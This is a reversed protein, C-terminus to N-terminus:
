SWRDWKKLHRTVAGMFNGGEYWGPASWEEFHLHCGSANGTEGVAGIKEGTKVKEGKHFPSPKKLHMYVYDHGTKKGDIVVYNGASSHYARYQVRGGRVAVLKTGCAAFVDQGQHTHGARPAGIGDGYTHPGRIPFKFPRYKFKADSSSEMTGSEPGIRFKYSGKPAASKDIRGDWRARHVAFPEQAEKVFSDVIEDTKRNVVDVRVDTPETNSFMFRVKPKKTGYFYVTRPKATLERLKFAGSDPIESPPVVKIARPSTARNDYPDRVKPKGSTAGRPVTATVSRGKASAPKVKIKGGDKAKFLVRNVSSLHRGTLQVKSDTTAKHMGGCTSVCVADKLEPPSAPAIGGGAASALGAGVSLCSVAIAAPAIATRARRRPSKIRARL